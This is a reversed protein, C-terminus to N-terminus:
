HISLTEMLISPHYAQQESADLQAWWNCEYFALNELMHIPGPHLALSLIQSVFTTSLMNQGCPLRVV